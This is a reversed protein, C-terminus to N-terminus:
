DAGGRGYDLHGNNATKARKPTHNFLPDPADRNSSMRGQRQTALNQDQHHRSMSSLVQGRRLDLVVAEHIAARLFFGPPVSFKM